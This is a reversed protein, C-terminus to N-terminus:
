QRPPVHISIRYCRSQSFRERMTLPERVAVESCRPMKNTVHVSNRLPQICEFLGMDAAHRAAVTRVTHCCALLLRLTCHSKKRWHRSVFSCCVARAPVSNQAALSLQAFTQLFSCPWRMSVLRDLIRTITAFFDSLSFSSSTRRVILSATAVIATGLFLLRLRWGLRTATMTRLYTRKAACRKPNSLRRAM